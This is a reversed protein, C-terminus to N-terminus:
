CRQRDIGISALFQAIAEGIAKTTELAQSSRAGRYVSRRPLAVSVVLQYETRVVQCPKQNLRTARHFGRFVVPTLLSRPSCQTLAGSTVWSRSTSGRNM